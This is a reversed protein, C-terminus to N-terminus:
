KARAKRAADIAQRLDRHWCGDVGCTWMYDTERSSFTGGSGSFWDLRAKERLYKTRWDVGRLTRCFECQCATRHYSLGKPKKGVPREPAHDKRDCLQYRGCCKPKKAPM